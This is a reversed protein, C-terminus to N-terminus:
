LFVPLSSVSYVAAEKVLKYPLSLDKLEMTVLLQRQPMPM